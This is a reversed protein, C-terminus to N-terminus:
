VHARGIKIVCQVSVNFGNREEDTTVVVKNLEVRPEFSTICASVANEILTATFPTLPEFLLARINSGFSPMFPKENFNLNLIYKISRKIAETGTKKSIDGTSPNPFFDLDLDSFDPPTNLIVELAM